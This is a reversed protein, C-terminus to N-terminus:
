PAYPPPAAAAQQAQRRKRQVQAAMACEEENRRNPIIICFRFYLVIITIIALVGLTIIYPKMTAWPYKLKEETSYTGGRPSLALRAVQSAILYPM